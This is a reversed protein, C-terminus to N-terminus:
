SPATAKASLLEVLKKETDEMGVGSLFSTAKLVPIDTKDLTLYGGTVVLDVGDLSSAVESFRMQRIEADIGHRKCIEAINYSIVTSTAIGTGCAVIVRRKGNANMLAGGPKDMVTKSETAQAAPALWQRLLTAVEGATKTALLSAQRDGDQFTTVLASLLEVQPKSDALVLMAVISIQLTASPDEMSHFPVPEALTAVAICSTKVVEPDTHPLAVGFPKTPIGTPFVKERALVREYFGDIVYGGALLRQSLISLVEDDSGAVLNPLMLDDRIFTGFDYPAQDIASPAIAM